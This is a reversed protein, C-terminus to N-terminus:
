TFILSQFNPFFFIPKNQKCGIGSKRGWHLTLKDKDCGELPPLTLSACHIKVCTGLTMCSILWPPSVLGANRARLEPSHGHNSERAYLDSKGVLSPCSTVSHFTATTWCGVAVSCVLKPHSTSFVWRASSVALPDPGASHLCLLQFRALGTSRCFWSLNFVGCCFCSGQKHWCLLYRLQPEAPWSCACLLSIGGATSLPWPSLYCAAGGTCGCSSPVVVWM